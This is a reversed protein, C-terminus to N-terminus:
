RGRTAKRAQAEAEAYDKSCRRYVGGGGFGVQPRHRGRQALLGQRGLHRHRDREVVECRVKVGAILAELAALSCRRARSRFTQDLQPADYWTELDGKADVPRQRRFPVM